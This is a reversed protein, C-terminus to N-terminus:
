RLLCVGLIIAGGFLFALGAMQTLMIFLDSPKVDRFKWGEQLFFVAQPFFLNVCGVAIAGLGLLLCGSDM